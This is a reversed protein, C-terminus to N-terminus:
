NIELTCTRSLNGFDYCKIEEEIIHEIWNVACRTKKMKEYRITFQVKKNSNSYNCFMEFQM